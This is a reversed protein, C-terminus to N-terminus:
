GKRGNALDDILRFVRGLDSDPLRLLMMMADYFVLDNRDAFVPSKRKGLSTENFPKEYGRIFAEFLERFPREKRGDASVVITRVADTGLLDEARCGLTESFTEAMETLMKRYQMKEWIEMLVLGDYVEAHIAYLGESEIHEKFKATGDM